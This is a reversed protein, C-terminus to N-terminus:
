FSKNELIIQSIENKAEEPIDNVVQYRYRDALAIEEKAKELRQRVVEIPETGREMLRRELEEMSPPLIFISVADPCKEMVQLAGCAEIELLVDKGQLRMNMVADAPTGYYNDCYEAYELMRGDAIRKEFDEKSIFYYHVGEIEHDRPSRTTASVSYFINDNESMLAGLVTGKGVGSPGSIVLLLGKKM